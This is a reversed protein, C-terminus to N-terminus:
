RDAWCRLTILCPMGTVKLKLPEITYPRPLQRGERLRDVRKCPPTSAIDYHYHTLSFEVSEFLKSSLLPSPLHQITHRANM